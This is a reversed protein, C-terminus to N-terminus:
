KWDKDESWKKTLEIAKQTETQLSGTERLLVYTNLATDVQWLATSKIIGPKIVEEFKGMEGELFHLLALDFYSWPQNIGKSIQMRCTDKAGELQNERGSLSPLRRNNIALMTLYNLLAYTSSPSVKLGEEYADQSKGYQQLTKQAGGLSCWADSDDPNLKVARELTRVADTAKKLKHEVVGLERWAGAYQPHSVTVEKLIQEAEQLRGTNKLLVALQMNIHLSDPVLNRAGKCSAIAADNDGNGLARKADNIYEDVTSKQRQLESWSQICYKQEFSRDYNPWEIDDRLSAVVPSDFVENRLSASLCDKITNVAGGFGTVGETDYTFVRLNSVDFPIDSHTEKIVVTSTPRLSHRVGLEYFVNPNLGTIDALVIRAYLIDRFMEDTIIGPTKSTDARKPVLNGGEPLQSKGPTM